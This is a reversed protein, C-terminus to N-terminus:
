RNLCKMVRENGAYDKIISVYRYGKEEFIRKVADGQDYGIELILRGEKKLFKQAEDAIIRYFKLGDEGGDLAARPDHDKVEPDLGEIDASRIYPPNSVICDFVGEVKEFMDSCLLFPFKGLKKANERAVALAKESIDTGVGDIDNKYNMVSLLICGSGTCLDLVREGDCVEKLVEETVFETDFRPILVDGNVFFELGMFPAIGTIHQLPIRQSREMIFSRYEIEDEDAVDEDSHAKIFTRDKKLVHELLLVADTKHDAIGAEKLKKEGYSLLSKIKM